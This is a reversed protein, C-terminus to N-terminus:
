GSAGPSQSEGVPATDVSPACIPGDLAYRVSRPAAPSVCPWGTPCASGACPQVPATSVTLRHACRGCTRRGGATAVLRPGCWHPRAACGAGGRAASRGRRTTHHRSRRGSVRAAARCATSARMSCAFGAKPGSSRSVVWNVSISRV